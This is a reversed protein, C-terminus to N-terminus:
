QIRKFLTTNPSLNIFKYTNNEKNKVQIKFTNESDPITDINNYINTVEYLITYAKNVGGNEVIIDGVQLNKTTIVKVKEM